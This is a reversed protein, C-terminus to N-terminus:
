DKPTREFVLARMDALHRETAALSGASGSGEAPRVGCQWLSDMLEQAMDMSITTFPVLSDGPKAEVMTAPEAISLRGDMEAWLAIGVSPSWPNRQAVIHKRFSM